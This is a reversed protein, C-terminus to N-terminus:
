IVIIKKMILVLVTVVIAFLILLCCFSGIACGKTCCSTGTSPEPTLLPRSSNSRPTHTYRPRSPPTYTPRSPPTYTIAPRELSSLKAVLGQMPYLYNTRMWEMRYVMIKNVERTRGAIVISEAALLQHQVQSIELFDNLSDGCLTDNHFFVKDDLVDPSFTYCLGLLVKQEGISLSAWNKYNTFRRVDSDTDCEVATCVCQLYYMLRAVDNNPVYVTVGTREVEIENAQFFVAM